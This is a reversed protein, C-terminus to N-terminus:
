LRRRAGASLWKTARVMTGRGEVSDIQVEDMLRGVGPLGLGLSQGTSYGDQMALDVDAMGPGEDRAEISLGTGAAEHTAGILMEGSGAYEVINRALESIATAILTLETGSFGVEEAIRRGVQRPTVVDLDAAIPVRTVGAEVAMALLM